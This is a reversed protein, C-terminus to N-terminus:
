LLASFALGSPETFISTMPFRFQFAFVLCASNIKEPAFAKEGAERGRLGVPPLLSIWQCLQALQKKNWTHQLSYNLAIMQACYNASSAWYGRCNCDSNMWSTRWVDNSPLAFNYIIIISVQAVITSCATISNPVSRSMSYFNRASFFVLCKLKLPFPFSSSTTCPCDRHGLSVGWALKTNLFALWSHSELTLILNM